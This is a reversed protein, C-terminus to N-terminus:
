LMYVVMILILLSRCCRDGRGSIEQKLSANEIIRLSRVTGGVLRLRFGRSLLKHAELYM